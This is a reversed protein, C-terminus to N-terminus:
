SGMASQVQGGYYIRTHERIARVIPDGDGGVWEAVLRPAPTDAASVRYASPAAALNSGSLAFAGALDAAAAEATGLTSTVGSALLKVISQGSFFPNGRGSLPGEKAPSFPLHDRIIGAMSSAVNTLPGFMAKMGNILGQVVNKGAQYLLGGLSGVASRIRGPLGAFLRVVSAVATSTASSVQGTLRSWLRLLAGILAEVRQKVSAGGTTFIGSIRGWLVEVNNVLAKFNSFLGSFAAGFVFVLNGVNHIVQNVLFFLVNLSDQAAPGLEAMLSLFRGVSEGLPGLNLAIVELIPGSAKVASVLGPMAEKVFSAIGEALGPIYPGIAAFMEKLSPGIDVVLQKLTDMARLLPGPKGPEGLLPAAATALTKKFTASLDSAAGKLRPDDALAAIGLGIVGGGLGTLVGAAITAGVLPGTVAAAGVLGAFVLPGSSLGSSVSGAIASALSRGVSEGAVKVKGGALLSRDVDLDVKVSARVRRTAEAVMTSLQRRFEMRGTPEAPVDVTVSNGVRDAEAAVEDRLRSTDAEVPVKLDEATAALEPTFPIRISGIQEGILRELQGRDFEKAIEKRLNRAFGRASPIITAYAQGVETSM